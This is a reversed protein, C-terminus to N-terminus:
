AAGDPAALQLLGSTRLTERMRDKAATTPRVTLYPEGVSVEVGPVVEGTAMDVPEGAGVAADLVKRTFAERVLHVLESPYREAVWAAFAKPDTVKAQVRGATISVAGLDTGDDDTVRVREAGSDAMLALLGTKFTAADEAVLKSVLQAAMASRAAGKMDGM